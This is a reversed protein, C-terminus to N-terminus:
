EKVIGILSFSKASGYTGAQKLYGGFCSYGFEISQLSPLNSMGFSRTKWFAYDGLKVSQLLPLDIERKMREIIGTLSFSSAGERHYKDGGFCWQGFVISQLSTLNSM